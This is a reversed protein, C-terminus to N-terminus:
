HVKLFHRLAINFILSFVIYSLLWGWEWGFFTLAVINKHEITIKNIASDSRIQSKGGIGFFSDKHTEPSLYKWEKTILIDKTYTQGAYIYSLTYRGEPGVLEFSIKDSVNQIAPSNQTLGPAKLEIFGAAHKEFYITTNFPENPMLPQFAVNSQMWGIVFLAPIMTIIMPKMSARFNEMTLDLMQQNIQALKKTDKEGKIKKRLEDMDKKIREIHKQDTTYKYILTAILSVVFSVALIAVLPGAFLIFELLENM